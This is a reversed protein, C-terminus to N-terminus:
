TRPGERQATRYLERAARRTADTVREGRAHPGAGGRPGDRGAALGHDAHGGGRRRRWWCINNRTSRSPALHTVCLVQRGRATHALKQGVVEAVRGGIGADVEDFVMTPCRAPPPSCRGCRWCPAHSSEARSWRPWRGRTKEPIPPSSFSPRRRAGVDWAGADPGRLSSARAPRREGCAWGSARM